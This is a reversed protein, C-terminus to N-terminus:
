NTLKKYLLTISEEDIYPIFKNIDVKYELKDFCYLEIINKITQKSVFPLFEAIDKNEKLLNVFLQDLDDEDLFPLINRIRIDQYVLDESSLVKELLDLLEDRKLFPILKKLSVM